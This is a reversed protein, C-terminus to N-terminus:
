DRHAGAAWLSPTPPAPPAPVAPPAPPVPAPGHHVGVPYSVWTTHTSTVARWLTVVDPISLATRVDEGVDYGALAAVPDTRLLEYFGADSRLRAVIEEITNV